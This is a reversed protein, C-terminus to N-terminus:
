PLGNDPKVNLFVPGPRQIEPIAGRGYFLCEETRLTHSIIAATQIVAACVPRNYVAHYIISLYFHTFARRCARIGAAPLGRSQHRIPM